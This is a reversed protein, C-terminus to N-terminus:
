TGPPPEPAPGGTERALLTAVTIDATVNATTIFMDPILDLAILLGIGEVPLDFALYVPALIFLGGSPVGPSYFSLLGIAASIAAIEASGLDISYLRAVFLTGVIRAVPSSYKLVSAALPLSIGTVHSPLALRNCAEIMAPLSALSSRTAFAVAQAPACARAFQLLPVGGLLTAIPYLALLSAVLLGSVVLLFYGVAGILDVGMRVAMSLVLCFIGIPAVALVWGVVVLMAQRVSDFLEVLPRRERAPVRTLAVALLVTFVVLPLMAGDVAAKLPNPPILGLLWDSFPPLKVQTTAVGDQVLAAGDTPMGSLLIPGALGGLLSAGAALALFWGLARGGVSGLRGATSGAISTVLLSVVLPVVTMRIANVWIAGVPELAATVALGAPNQSWAIILGAALAVLLSGLVSYTSRM